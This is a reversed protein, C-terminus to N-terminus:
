FIGVMRLELTLMVPSMIFMLYNGDVIFLLNM